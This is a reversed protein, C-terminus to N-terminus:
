INVKDSCCIYIPFMHVKIRYSVMFLYINPFIFFIPFLFVIKAFYGVM